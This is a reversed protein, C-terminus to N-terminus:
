AGRADGSRCCFVPAVVAVDNQKRWLIASKGERCGWRVDEPYGLERQAVAMQEELLEKMEKTYTERVDHNAKDLIKPNYRFCIPACLFNCGKNQQQSLSSM